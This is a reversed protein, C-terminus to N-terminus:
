ILKNLSIFREARPSAAKLFYVKYLSNKLTVMIMKGRRFNVYLLNVASKVEM